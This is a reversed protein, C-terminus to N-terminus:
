VQPRLLQLIVLLSDVVATAGAARLLKEKREDRAFGVFPVGASQAARLDSPSDGIMLADAPRAGMATLARRLSYPDPKMRDLNQTRGYLHPEFCAALGRRELYGAAVTRSNNTTLALRAGVATWTRILPDAYATPMATPVARLEEQTLMAELETVLDSGRHRENVSHLVALPDLSDSEERTLLGLGQRTLWDMLQRAVKNASYGAFLRCIPGDFDWLVVRTGAILRRLDEAAAATLETQKADSTV